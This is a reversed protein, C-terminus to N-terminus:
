RVVSRPALGGDRTHLILADARRHFREGVKGGVLAALLMIAVAVVGTAIAAAGTANHSFWQPLHVQDFFNYRDGVWAGLIAVVAALVVFWIATLIGNRAGDYRAMRGAVWGGVLFAVLLTVFGAVLGGVSLSTTTGKIGRQYGVRGAGGLVGAILVATGLAAVMGALTAPIAIGGFRRRAEVVGVDERNPTVTIGDDRIEAAARSGAPATVHDQTTM